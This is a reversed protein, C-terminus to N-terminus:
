DLANLVIQAACVLVVMGTALALVALEIVNM